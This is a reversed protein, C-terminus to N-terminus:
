HWYEDHVLQAVLLSCRFDDVAQRAFAMSDAEIGAFVVDHYTTKMLPDQLVVFNGQAIRRIEPPKAIRDRFLLTECGTGRIFCTKKLVWLQTYGMQIPFRMVEEATPEKEFVYTYRGLSRNTMYVFHWGDFEKAFPTATNHPFVCLPFGRIFIAQEM